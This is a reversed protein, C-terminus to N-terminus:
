PTELKSNAIIRLHQHMWAPAKTLDTLLRRRDAASLLTILPALREPTLNAEGINRLAGFVRASM